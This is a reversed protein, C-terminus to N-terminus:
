TLQFAALMLEYLPLLPLLLSIILLLLALVFLLLRLLLCCCLRFLRFLFVFSMALVLDFQVVLVQSCYSDAYPKGLNWVSVM